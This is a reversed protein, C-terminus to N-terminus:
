NGYCAVVFLHKESKSVAFGVRTNNFNISNYLSSIDGDRITLPDARDPDQYSEYDIDIKIWEETAYTVYNKDTTLVQNGNEDLPIETFWFNYIEDGINYNFFEKALLDARIQAKKSLEADYKIKVIEAFGDDDIKDFDTSQYPHIERATNHLEIAINFQSFSSFSILLFIILPTIKM